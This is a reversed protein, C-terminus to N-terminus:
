MQMCNRMLYNADVYMPYHDDLADVIWRGCVYCERLNCEYTLQDLYYRKIYFSFGHLSHTDIKDIICKPTNNLVTVLHHRICNGAIVTRTGEADILSSYRTNHEHISSRPICKFTLFYNPLYGQKFKYVFKLCSLDFLHKISLLELSKFLPETHANYKNLSIIRMFRKQIKVLRQYNFGWALICYTLRSQVMSCYLTRLIYGPLYRKLRNLVGSFKTIKNAIIDIHPKWSVNENLTLGLFNFNTVREILIDDIKIEPILYDIKKNMAHFIMYKTKKTNLSLKNVALWDYVYGLQENINVPSTIPINITRFLSSDDAYLIFEFNNTANPIDNMYILFLLPGLISGQPVGTKLTLLYSSASEIEVYQQRGTLYSSFWKLATDTIGYHSLKNLLIEHNLTDFAKSLDMFIALSANKEDIDKLIKDTLELGALETSHIKRFGYQSRYFLNNKNFYDYLQIYAVKEFVKSTATLLSVPRYNDMITIDDKKFFPSVKAIKLKEPFIGTLLSQNIILTLPKIIASSLFKLLKVSFGDHGSSNKTRLTTLYKTVDSEEVLNFTFSTLVREKMYTEYGRKNDTTINNALKPGIECFFANFKNCIETKDVIVKSGVIIKELENRKNNSKCIIESITKWTMKIDGAYKNFLQNYYQIKAERITRKLIGNFVKLNNKLNAYELTDVTCQKLKIYFNDRFKISWIIGTTIWKNKKHRHKHFKVYRDPMHKDKLSKLHEHLINYNQNPDTLLDSNFKNVINTNLMDKRMDEMAKTCNIKQKVRRPPKTQKNSLNDLCIFYPYHDSLEDLIIGSTTKVTQFSLKCYINDILTAGSTRNLRTPLTIKPFFSHGLMMDFFDSYHIEGNMKLLNINYDGCILVENNTASLEQLIPELEERFTTINRVNNNDRPPKYINGITVKNQLCDHSLELFLGDWITSNNVIKTVTVDFRDDYIFVLVLM